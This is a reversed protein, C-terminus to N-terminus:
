FEIRGKQRNASKETAKGDCNIINDKMIREGRLM